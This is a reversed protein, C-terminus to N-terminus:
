AQGRARWVVSRVADLNAQPADVAIVCGPAVLLRGGPLQGLADEVEAVVEDPRGTAVVGQDNVGGVLVRDTRLRMQALSPGLRRDHWNIAVAPYENLEDLFCDAGHAHIIVPLDTAQIVQLDYPRAFSQFVERSLLAASASSTAYFIGDAGAERLARAFAVFTETIATLATRVVAPDERLHRYVAADSLSAAATLPSFLTTVLPVDPGVLQRLLRLARLQEGLFGERGSAPAIRTWERAHRIVPEGAGYVGFADVRALDPRAGWPQALSGAAWTVKILDFQFRRHFDAHARALREADLEDGPFHRWLAVLPVTGKGQLLGQWRETSRADGM